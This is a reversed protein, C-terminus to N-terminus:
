EAGGTIRIYLDKYIETDSFANERAKRNASAGDNYEGGGYRHTLKAANLEAADAIDIGYQWLVTDVMTFILAINNVIDQAPINEHHMLKHKIKECLQGAYFHLYFISDSTNMRIGSSVLFPDFDIELNLEDILATLYWIVDSCEKALEMKDKNRWINKHLVEHVESVEGMIGLMWDCIGLEKSDHPKITRLAVKTYEQYNM